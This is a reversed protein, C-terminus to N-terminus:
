RGGGAASVPRPAEALGPAPPFVGAAAVMRTFAAGGERRYSGLRPDCCTCAEISLVAGVGLRRALSLNAARLDIRRAGGAPPAAEAGFEGAFAEAREEPVAYCCSGIAPGLIASISEPRTGFREELMRAATALIGTGKWGSHLVGFAGSARDLVWIPMCDAVTVSAFLRRDSLLIGDAGGDGAAARALRRHEAAGPSFIVNRSHALELGLVSAPDVGITEFFRERNPNPRAAEYRM